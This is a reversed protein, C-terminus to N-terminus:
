KSPKAAELGEATCTFYVSLAAMVLMKNVTAHYRRVKLRGDHEMVTM